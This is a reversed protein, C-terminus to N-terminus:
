VSAAISKGRLYCMQSRVLNFPLSRYQSKRLNWTTDLNVHTSPDCKRCLDYRYMSRMLLVFKKRPRNSKGTFLGYTGITATTASLIIGSFDSYSATSMGGSVQWFITSATIGGELIIRTQTAVTFVGRSAGLWTLLTSCAWQLLNSPTPRVRNPLCLYRWMGRHPCYRFLYFSWWELLVQSCNINTGDRSFDPMSACLGPYM